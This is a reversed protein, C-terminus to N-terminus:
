FLKYGLKLSTQKIYFEEGVIQNGANVTKPNFKVEINYRKYQYGVGFNFNFSNYMDNYIEEKTIQNFSLYSYENVNSIISKSANLCLAVNAFFKSNNNISFYRRIGLPIKFVSVNNEFQIKNKSDMLPEQYKYYYPDFVVSWNGNNYPLIIEAEFGYGMNTSNESKYTNKMYPSVYTSSNSNVLLNLKLNIEFKRKQTIIKSENTGSICNNTKIFYDVLEDNYELSEISKQDNNCKFNVFLQQKYRENESINRDDNEYKKYILQEIKEANGYFYRAYLENEFYYLNSKGEVLVKLFLTKDQFTPNPDREPTQLNFVSVDIKVTERIYKTKDIISFEKIVDISKTIINEDQSSKIEISKPNNKWEYNKILCETKVGSNDIYYGPEFKNQAFSLFTVLLLM